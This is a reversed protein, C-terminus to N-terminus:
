PKVQYIVVGANRYVAPYTAELWTLVEPAYRGREVPGIYIYTVQYTALAQRWLGADPTVFLANLVQERQAQEEYHGRWQLEHGPWGLVTPLGTLASVRGEYTYSGWQEAPAELIVPAGTVHAMLWDLAEADDPQATRLWAAGDLTMPVGHERARAPIALVTYVLGVAMLGGALAQAWRRRTQTLWWAGALSWLVWAQFYFKFITNMRHNFVDKLYIFEPVFVLALGGMTLLLPFASAQQAAGPALLASMGAGLGLALLVAVWPNALRQLLAAKFTELPVDVGPIPTGSLVAKLYPYGGTLGLLLAGLLIALLLGGGWRLPQDWSVGNERCVALLLGVLPVVLPAFMVLAQQLRTANFLNPLFGGAQSRLGVWFPFYLAVSLAALLVAQPLWVELRKLAAPWDAGQGLLWAAVMLLGYIPFDWTNLFGLAGLMGAYPLWGLLVAWSPVAQTPQERTTLYLHYALAIAVLVFPLGLLHPHMDGLLFSFAPFEDIIEISEGWPAVDRLTRSAQWWWFFRQPVWSFPPRPASDLYHIGLWQWFAAPLLGRAHLVELFGEANGTLVLLLPALLPASLRKGALLDYLLGYAGVVTLSFWTANALNFAVTAAVGSLRTLVGMLVYGLYYYSIAYGSLWPDHPPFYRTRLVANLFAIEMWKEGGATELQPQTARVLTWLLWAGLMLLEVTLVFHRQAEWWARFEERRPWLLWGGAGALLAMGGLLAALTFPFFHLIGGWWVLVGILLLGLAKALAYGRSPLRRLWVFLLPWAAFALVQWALYWSFLTM